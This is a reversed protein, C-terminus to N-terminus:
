AMGAVAWARAPLEFPGDAVDLGRRFADHLAAQCEDDLSECFAGAPGVGAPLPSWLDEFDTYCASVVLPGSRVNHLGAALWLTTLGPKDFGRFTAAEDEAAAREPDVERAVRWFTRLLTMEGAYDWVCAAVVGGRRTVRRMERVGAEPDDMFNVVLQSLTVDFSEDAFPLSEGGASAVEVGPLRRRCARVFSESPDVAVVSDPGLLEALASTLSGPGCGVDLVRMGPIVGAFKILAPALPTSYRGMWKQYADASVRFSDVGTM